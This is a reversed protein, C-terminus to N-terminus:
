HDPSAPRIQLVDPAIQDSRRRILDTFGEPWLTASSWHATELIAGALEACTLNAARVDARALNVNTLDAYRLEADRLDADRLDAGALNAKFLNVSRLDADRLDAMRLDARILNRGSLDVGQLDAGRMATRWWSGRPDRLARSRLDDEWSAKAFTDVYIRKGVVSIKYFRHSAPARTSTKILAAEIDEWRRSILSLAKACENEVKGAPANQRYRDQLLVLEVCRDRWDLMLVAQFNLNYSRESQKRATRSVIKKVIDWTDEGAKSLIGKFFEGAAVAITIVLVSELALGARGLDRIHVRDLRWDVRVSSSIDATVEAKEADSLPTGQFSDTILQQVSIQQTV